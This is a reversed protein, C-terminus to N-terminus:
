ESYLTFFRTIQEATYRETKSWSEITMFYNGDVNEFEPSWDEEDSTSNQNEDYIELLEEYAYEYDEVPVDEKLYPYIHDVFHGDKITTRAILPPAVPNDNGVNSSIEDNSPAAQNIASGILVIFFVRLIM